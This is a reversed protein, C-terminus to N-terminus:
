EVLRVRYHRDPGGLGNTHITQSLPGGAAIPGNLDVFSEANALGNTSYQVQYTKGSVSAWYVIAGGATDPLVGVMSLFSGANLADTGARFEANDGVGDGDSDFADPNSGLSKEWSNNLADTDNDATDLPQVSGINPIFVSYTPTNSYIQSNAFFSAEAISPANFIRVFLPGGDYNPLSLGFLGSAGLAPDVGEGIRRSAVIVNNTGTPVGNTNPADIQGNYTRLVQVLDGTVVPHGFLAAAADTGQLVHGREDQVANTNGIHLPAQLAAHARLGFALLGGALVFTRLIPANM